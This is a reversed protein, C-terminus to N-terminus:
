VYNTGDLHGNSENGNAVKAEVELKPKPNTEGPSTEEDSVGPLHSVALVNSLRFSLIVSCSPYFLM